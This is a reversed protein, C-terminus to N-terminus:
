LIFIRCIMIYTLINIHSEIHDKNGYREADAAARLATRQISNNSSAAVRCAIGTIKNERILGATIEKKKKYYFSIPLALANAPVTLKKTYIEQRNIGQLITPEETSKRYPKDAM